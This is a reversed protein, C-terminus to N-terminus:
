KRGRIKCARRIKRLESLVKRALKKAEPSKIGHNGEAADWEWYSIGYCDPQGSYLAVPCIDCIVLSGRYYRHAHHCLACGPEEDVLGESLPEWKDEISRDLANIFGQTTLVERKKSM